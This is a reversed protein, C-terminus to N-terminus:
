PNPDERPLVVPAVISPMEGVIAHLIDQLAVVGQVVSREDVVLALRDGTQQFLEFVQLVGTDEAVYVPPRAASALEFRDGHLCRALLDTAPVIGIVDDLSGQCVPFHTRRSDIIKQRNLNEPSALDLWVAKKRPTMLTKVEQEGLRLVRDVMSQESAEFTGSEAGQEILVRIETRTVEPEESASHVGLLRLLVDTSVGLVRVVPSAIWAATQLPLAVSTAIAEPFLLALRKPVLEGLVLSLYTILLVVIGFAIADRQVTLLMPFIALLDALKEALRSGGFAGAVIGITTIGIQVTSLIQNPNNALRLAAKAGRDGQKSARELRVKRASVIAMESMAFIGNALILALLCALDILVSSM